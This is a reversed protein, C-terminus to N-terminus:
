ETDPQVADDHNDSSTPRLNRHRKRISRFPSAVDRSSMVDDGDTETVVEEEDANVDEEELKGYLDESQKTCNLFSLQVPPKSKTKSTAATREVDPVDLEGDNSSSDAAASVCASTSAPSRGVAAARYEPKMCASSDAEEEDSCGDGDDYDSGVKWKGSLFDIAAASNANESMCDNNVDALTYKTWKDPHLTYDAPADSKNIRKLPLGIPVKFLGVEVSSPPKLCIEETEEEEEEEEEAPTPRCEIETVKWAAIDNSHKAELANLTAFVSSQRCKFGENNSRVYFKSTGDESELAEM